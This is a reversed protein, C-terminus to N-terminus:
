KVDIAIVSDQVPPKHLTFTFTTGNGVQSEVSITQKHAEIIHKVIALGLGSGGQERSRSKDVRYFREFLRPIHKEPIGIGTDKISVAVKHKQKYIKILTEGNPKGYKISNVVLNNLVEFIADRDAFVNVIDNELDGDYKLKIEYKLKRMDQMEYVESILKVINFAEYKLRSEGSELKSITDIDKITAILRKVNKSTRKLYKRNINDDELGGDLLTLIYGQINFVPTKLEHAVNGIFEKRFKENEKLQKIERAKNKAWSAVDKNVESIIDISDINDYLEKNPSKFRNITKYVPKLRQIIYTNLIYYTLIFTIMFFLLLSFFLFVWPNDVPFLINLSIIIGSIASLVIAIATALVKPSFNKMPSKFKKAKM